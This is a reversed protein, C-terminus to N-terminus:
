EAPAPAKWLPQSYEAWERERRQADEQLARLLADRLQLEAAQAAVLPAVLRPDIPKAEQALCPLTALCLAAAALFKTM